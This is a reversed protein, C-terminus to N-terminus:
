DRGKEPLTFYYFDAKEPDRKLMSTQKRRPQSEYDFGLSDLLAAAPVMIVGRHYRKIRVGASTPRDAFFELGMTSHEKDCYLRVWDFNDLGFMEQAVSWISIDGNCHISVLPDTQQQTRATTRTFLTFTFASTM